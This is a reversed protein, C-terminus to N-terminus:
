YELSTSTGSQSIKIDMGNYNLLFVGHTGTPCHEVHIPHSGHLNTNNPVGYVDQSWVTRTYNNISPSRSSDTHEGLGYINPNPPLATKIRIDQSEFIIPHGQTSSLVENSYTRFASFSLPDATYNFSIEQATILTGPPRPVM